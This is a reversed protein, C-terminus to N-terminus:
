NERVYANYEEKTVKKGKTPKDISFEENFDIRELKLSSLPNFELEIIIGPLGGYGKPGHGELLGDKYWAIVPYTQEIGNKRIETYSTIAKNCDYGNINRKEDTLEWKVNFLDDEIRFYVGDLEHLSISTGGEVDVYFEGMTSAVIEYINLGDPVVEEESKFYSINSKFRLNFYITDYNTSQERMALIIKKISEDQITDLMSEGLNSYDEILAYKAIGHNEQGSATLSLFALLITILQKM